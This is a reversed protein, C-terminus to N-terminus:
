AAQAFEVWFTTGSGIETDFGIRGGMHEVMQRSIHLGLGTGGARRTSSSDAQSFKGFIRDRFDEPIGPGRDRVCIRIQDRSREEVTVQVSEHAPSFKAANSLLNALVQLLRQEDVVIHIDNSPADLEFRVNLRQAYGEAAQVANRIMDALARPKLDFRMNGSAIKEIDLIDNILTVLRECNSNAIELFRKASDPLVAAHAGLVLGVSGRISTLPTRLEHSVVSIFESKVREVERQESTDQIQSVFYHPQGNSHRVLAVSLLAWILRGSKHFYRKEVRYRDIEGSLCRNMLVLSVQMDDPHTITRFDNALLEDESYGLLECLAHNVILFRGQPTVLANGIPATEMATRFIEESSKLSQLVLQRGLAAGLSGALLSLLYQDDEDFASPEAGMVKLVGTARGAEFLPTCLMSRIGVQRCAQMDVRHDFETDDCRLVRQESVCLGSLSAARNLRLGLHERISTSTSRYVMEDGEVLEIVAGKAGTLTEALDVVRQMFEDIEFEAETVLQQVELVGQLLWELRSTRLTGSSARKGITREPMTSASRALAYLVARRMANADDHSLDIVDQAGARLADMRDQISATETYLLIPGAFDSERLRSIATHAAAVSTLPLLACATVGPAAIRDIPDTSKLHGLDRLTDRLLKCAPSLDCTVYFVHTQRQIAAM